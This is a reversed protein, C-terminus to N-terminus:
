QALDGVDGLGVRARPLIGLVGFYCLLWRKEPIRAYKVTYYAALFHCFSQGAIHSCRRARRVSFPGIDEM